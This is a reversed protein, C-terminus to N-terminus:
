GPQDSLAREILDPIARLRSLEANVPVRDAVGLIMREAGRVEQVARLVAAEFDQEEHTDLLVDQPIGGWLTPGSGVAERAQVLSLDSQPPGCIGEFGDVGAEVLAALLRKIPGGVHVVLQKDQRHLEETTLRYSESLYAQFARPSIFQGDLNDPSLVLRGPVQAMEKVLDQLKADLVANIEDVIPERLFLLGESWGLFEHLLDSYPRRPIELALVGDQGVREVWGSLATTDLVYSRANVLELVAALDDKTKVPYETQWWDGDPGVIWRAILEGASTKSRIVREGDRETTVVEAGLTEVRWPAVALWVPVGLAGAIQPLSFDRWPNPLSGRQHHFEYWLTLDPLFLPQTRGKDAFRSLLEAKLNMV